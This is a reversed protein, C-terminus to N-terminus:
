SENDPKIYKGIQTLEDIRKIAEEQGTTSLKRFKSLLICENVPLLTDTENVPSISLASESPINMIEEFDRINNKELAYFLEKTKKTDHGFFYYKHLELAEAIKELTDMKLPISEAEYKRVTIESIGAKLALEKQTLKKEKRINKIEDGLNKRM